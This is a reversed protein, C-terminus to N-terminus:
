PIDSINIVVKYNVSHIIKISPFILFLEFELEEENSIEFKIDTGALVHFLDWDSLSHLYVSFM